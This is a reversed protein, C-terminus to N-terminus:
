KSHLRSRRPIRAVRRRGIGGPEPGSRALTERGYKRLRGLRRWVNWESGTQVVTLCKRTPAHVASLIRDSRLQAARDFEGPNQPKEVASLRGFCRIRDGAELRPPEGLVLLTARGGIPRWTDGNRLSVLDVALRTGDEPLMARMLDPTKPPLTRPAEVAIAEFCIPESQQRAYRSLDDTPFLNWCCHRWAAATAAIALLVLVNAAVLPM